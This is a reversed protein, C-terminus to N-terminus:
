AYRKLDTQRDAIAARPIQRQAAILKKALIFDRPSNVADVAVLRGSSLYYVAFGGPGMEGRLVIEDYDLALGAIQLKLDYQDSWFWPTDTFGQQRGLLSFAAAKGQEVANHVSELRVRGSVLPHPHSTCDGAAFIRPDESRAYCDVVIGNDCSLGAQEALAVNPRVGIGAIVLDCDFREGGATRVAEVREEGIFADVAAGLRIDVGARRHYEQYFVSMEPCVVRGLVRDAAELVTVELGRERAVAAVELGIYGAGVILLRAGAVFAEGIADVDAISRLYHIGRLGAGPVDLERPRSGTALLLRDFELKRGDSLRLRSGALDIEEARTGLLLDVHRSEYFSAPKLFLRERPLSGALYKKSLPPRQYPPYPEDAVLTISGEFGNQRSTQITQLAAQGGGVVVLQTPM